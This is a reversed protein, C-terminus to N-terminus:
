LLWMFLERAVSVGRRVEAPGDPAGTRGGGENSVVGQEEVAVVSHV